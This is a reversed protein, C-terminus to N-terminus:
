RGPEYEYAPPPPPSYSPPVVRRRSPVNAVGQAAIWVMVSCGFAIFAGSRLELADNPGPSDVLRWLCIAFMAFGGYRLPDRVIGQLAPVFSCAASLGVVLCLGALLSGSVGLADWGTTGGTATAWRRAAQLVGYLPGHVEDFSASNDAPPRPAPGYWPRGLAAVAGIAGVIVMLVHTRFGLTRM